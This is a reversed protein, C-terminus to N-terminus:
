DCTYVEKYFHPVWLVICSGTVPVCPCLGWHSGSGILPLGQNIPLALDGSDSLMQRVFTCILHVAFKEM